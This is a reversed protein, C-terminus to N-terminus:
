TKLLFKMVKGSANRPLVDHFVIHRPVKYNAMTERCWSVLGEKSLDAATVVHAATVEGLREDAVGIVAVDSIDPHQLLAKEIEAPYVNFGGVIVRQRLLKRPQKMTM